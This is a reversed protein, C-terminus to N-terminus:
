RRAQAILSTAADVPIAFGVDEAAAAQAAASNIGIVRGALDILPGGSNGPNIAADTQILDTYVTGDELEIRRHLSSVIGSSVSPGGVLGLSFGVAM